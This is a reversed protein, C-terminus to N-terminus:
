RGMKLERKRAYMEHDAREFVADYDRDVNKDYVGLGSAVVALGNRQNEITKRNFDEMLADRNGYDAGTLLAAFEDGGIRYVPSHKFHDCILKSANQIMRDGADHGLTDNMLKLNNLDFVVMAFESQTGNAINFKLEDKVETYANLNGIGTLPDVYAKFKATGLERDRDKKEDEVVYVHILCTAILCGIAYFPVLPYYTQFIIFIVM